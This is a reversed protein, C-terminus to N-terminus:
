SGFAGLAHVDCHDACAGIVKVLMQERPVGTDRRPRRPRREILKGVCRVAADVLDGVERSPKAKM